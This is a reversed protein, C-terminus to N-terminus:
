AHVTPLLVDVAPAGHSAHTGSFPYNEILFRPNRMRLRVDGFRGLGLISGITTTRRRRVMGTVVTRRPAGGVVQLRKARGDASLNLDLVGGRTIRLTVLTGNEDLYRLRKGRAVTEVQDRGPISGLTSNLPNGALDAVAGPGEGNVIVTWLMNARLPAAPTALVVHNAPDYVASAVAVADTGPRGAAAIRYNAANGATAPNLPGDFHFVLETVADAPGVLRVDTLKPGTVDPDVDQITLRALATWSAPGAANNPVLALTLVEDHNDNPNPLVRITVAKSTEGPAFVVPEYAPVYDVLPRATDGPRRVLETAVHVVDTGRSDGFRNVTVTATGANEAVTYAASGFAFSAPPPPPPPTLVYGQIPAATNSAWDGGPSTEGSAELSFSLDLVSGIGIIPNGDRDVMWGRYPFRMELEHGDASLAQSAIGPVVPGKDRVLIITGDDRYVWQTYNKYTGPKVDVFGAPYPGDNGAVYQGSTQDLFAQQLEQPNSAGHQLYHATNFAGDYWEVEGNVDYGNTSPYYGGEYLPYGTADNQDVDITVIAYYRGAAVGPGTSHQTRGIVGRSRMYFYLADEDHSVKYELLDVDPYDMYAPSDDAQDHDTDHQNDAPDYYSPLSAWDGFNGDITISLVIRSELFDINPRRSVCRRARRDARNPVWPTWNM